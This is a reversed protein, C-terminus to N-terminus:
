VPLTDADVGYLIHMVASTCCNPRSQCRGDRRAEAIACLEQDDIPM